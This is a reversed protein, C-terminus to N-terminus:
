GTEKGKGAGIRGTGRDAMEMLRGLFALSGFALIVDERGALLYAMEVAEELSDAATVAGHVKAAEAALEYASLARPNDSMGVTIIQDALSYTASIVKAFEKDKLMGMIYIIRRGPFYCAASQALRVAADENHAGDLIFYPKRGAVTFRGPWRAEALGARLAEEKVPFGLEGLVKLTEAALVANDIQWQGALTIELKRFGGYDFRQRELGYRINAAAGPDAATLGCGLGRAKQRIVEMVEAKQKLAVVHCGAKIIGAKQSAIEELTHGLFQMHDMSVSTIVAALTNCVINTADLAGGMGTELVVLDCKKDRFYLFAMVTEIEFVTPHHLGEEAMGGCVDKLREVYGCYAKKSISKGDARITERPDFVAPSFYRGVRYGGRLLVAETFASVSGKGNTGAVHVFKLEEQPNGVRRCLERINDLGPSIGWRGAQEVYERAERYNM